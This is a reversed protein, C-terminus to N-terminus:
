SNESAWPKAERDTWATVIRGGCNDGSILWPAPPLEGPAGADALYSISFVYRETRFRFAREGTPYQRLMELYEELALGLMTIIRAHPIGVYRFHWPEWAIGTLHEKGKPYRLIFGYRPAAERVARCIGFEPFEPCIPDMIGQRLGLDVALGTEHESCGPRAVYRAAFERGRQRLTEEWLAQQQERSRWGSVAAIQGWGHLDNMLQNLLAAARREMQVGDSEPGVQALGSPFPGGNGPNDGNVLILSGADGPRRERSM